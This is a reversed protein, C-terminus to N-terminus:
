VLILCLKKLTMQYQHKCSWLYTLRNTNYILCCQIAKQKPVSIGRLLGSSSLTQIKKKILCFMHRSLAHVCLDTQLHIAPVAQKVFVYCWKFGTAPEMWGVQFINKLPPRLRYLDFYVSVFQYHPIQRLYRLLGKRYVPSPFRKGAGCRACDKMDAM